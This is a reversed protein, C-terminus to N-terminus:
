LNRKYYGRMQVMCPSTCVGITSGDGGFDLAYTKTSSTTWVPVTVPIVSSYYGQVRVTTDSGEIYIRLKSYHKVPAAIMYEYWYVGNFFLVGIQDYGANTFWDSGADTSGALAVSDRVVTSYTETYLDTQAFSVTAILLLVILIVKKM